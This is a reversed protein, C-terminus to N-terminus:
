PRPPCRATWSPLRELEATEGPPLEGKARLESWFAQVRDLSACGEAVAEPRGQALLARALSAEASAVEMRASSYQPDEAVARRTIEL